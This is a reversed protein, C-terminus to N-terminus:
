RQGFSYLRELLFACSFYILSFLITQTHHHHKLRFFDFNGARLFRLYFVVCACYLCVVITHLACNVTCLLFSSVSLLCKWLKPKSKWSLLWDIFSEVSVLQFFRFYLMFFQCKDSLNFYKKFIEENLSLFCTFTLFMWSIWVSTEMFLCDYPKSM